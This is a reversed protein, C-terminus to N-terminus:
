TYLVIGILIGILFGKFCYGLWEDLFNEEREPKILKM